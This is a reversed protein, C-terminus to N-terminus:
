NRAYHLAGNAKLIAALRESVALKVKIERGSRRNVVRPPGGGDLAQKIGSIVLEDGPRLEQRQAPNALELPLIGFNVLNAKHIRAFSEAMVARVGLYRPCLAAHERSSGQGYNQGAVIFGNKVNQTRQIFDPDHRSFVYQSIRPINARLSMIQAGGPIIDDTTINDGCNILVPGELRDPLAEFQPLPAINPGRVVKIDSTPPGPPNIMSDDIHYSSPVEVPPPSGLKRPDSIVGSLASAIAVEASVLYVKADKTGSRGPFNRNSTRLSVGGSRPAQGIGVCFGCASEMIRAGSAIIDALAGCQSLTLLVQRSGPAVILSMGPPVKKGKLMGAVKLLDALFSNTCSGVAVQDVKLGEENRVPAVNDPSSPRAMLPELSNLDIVMEGDYSCGAEAKVERWEALRDQAEFYARTVQDSPFVATFAGTEISMNAITARQPVSLSAVGPGSFEFIKGRGGAVTVRRLLELSIDKASCWEPLRGDLVVKVVQPMDLHFPNGAMALAVDLGGAGVALMGVGGSTTTHSDAGLMTEGPVSFRELNVQHCIGNGARSFYLGYKACATELYRHDDMNEFGMQLTNHDVFTVSRKTKVRPVGMAEFQLMAVAGTADQLLTHEITIAIEIGAEMRGSVLHRSILQEVINQPM